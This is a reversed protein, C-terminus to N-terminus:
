EESTVYYVEEERHWFPRTTKSYVRYNGYLLSDFDILKLAYKENFQEAAQEISEAQITAIPKNYADSITRKDDSEHYFTYVAM